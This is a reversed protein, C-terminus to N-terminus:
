SDMSRILNDAAGLGCTSVLIGQAGSSRWRMRGGSMVTDCDLRESVKNNSKVSSPPSAPACTRWRMYMHLMHVLPRPAARYGNGQPHQSRVYQRDTPLWCSPASGMKCTPVYRDYPTDRQEYGEELHGAFWAPGAGDDLLGRLACGSSSVRRGDLIGTVKSLGVITWSIHQTDRICRPSLSNSRQECQAIGWAPILRTERFVYCQMCSPVKSVGRRPAPLYRSFSPRTLFPLPSPSFPLIFPSSSTMCGALFPRTGRSHWLLSASYDAALRVHLPSVFFFIGFLIESCLVCEGHMAFHSGICMRGGSSFAWFRRGMERRRERGGGDGGGLWRQPEWREAGPFVGEDRHLAHALAAVRVGGPVEYPGVRAGAGPVVRPQPGPIPAHLRLTETVVAHLLPLGDLRGPPEGGPSAPRQGAGAPRGLLEARLESQLDPRRSMHWALYTLALGATEQGALVHDWLESQVSLDKQLITTAYLPSNAGSSEEERRIGKLLANMVVPEDATDKSVGEGTELHKMTRRCLDTNWAALEQNATDVWSPYLEIGIRRCLATLRPLEQPFFGFDNRAKYLELWHGRYGRNDIFNTSRSIGWIYASIFDMATALFLSYVDIGGESLSQELTPVFRDYLIVNAQATMARSSWIYSKSYVNSIMRKRLSHERSGRSSFM